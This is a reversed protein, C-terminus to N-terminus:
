RSSQLNRYNSTFSLLGTPRNYHFIPWADPKIQQALRPDGFTIRGDRGPQGKLLEELRAYPIPGHDANHADVVIRDKNLEEMLYKLSSEYGSATIDYLPAATASFSEIKTRNKSSLGRLTAKLETVQPKGLRMESPQMIITKWPKGDPMSASMEAGIAEAQQETPLNASGPILLDRVAAAPKGSPGILAVTADIFEKDDVRAGSHWYKLEQRLRGPTYQNLAQASLDLVFAAQITSDAGHQERLREIRKRLEGNRYPRHHEPVGTRFLEASHIKSAPLDISRAAARDVLLLGHPGILKLLNDVEPVDYTEMLGEGGMHVIGASANGTFIDETNLLDIRELEPKGIREADADFLMKAEVIHITGMTSPPGWVDLSLFEEENLPRQLEHKYHKTQGNDGVVQIDLTKRDQEFSVICDLTGNKVDMDLVYTGANNGRDTDAIFIETGSVTILLATATSNAGERPWYGLQLSMGEQSTGKFKLTLGSDKPIEKRGDFLPHNHKHTIGPNYDVRSLTGYNQPDGDNVFASSDPSDLDKITPNESVVGTLPGNSHTSTTQNMAERQVLLSGDPTDDYLYTDKALTLAIQPQIDAETRIAERQVLKDLLDKDIAAKLTAMSVEVFSNRGQSNLLLRYAKAVGNETIPGTGAAEADLTIPNGASSSLGLKRLTQKAGYPDLPDDVAVVATDPLHVIVNKIEPTPTPPIETPSPTASPSPTPEQTHTPSPTIPTKRVIPTLDDDRIDVRNAVFPLSISYTAIIPAEEQRTDDVIGEFTQQERDPAQEIIPAPQRMMSQATAIDPKDMSQIGLIAITAAATERYHHKVSQLMNVARSHAHVLKSPRRLEAGINNSAEQVSAPVFGSEHNSMDM